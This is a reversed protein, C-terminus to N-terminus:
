KYGSPIVNSEVPSGPIGQVEISKDVWVLQVCLVMPEAQYASADTDMPRDQSTTNIKEVPTKRTVFSRPNNFFGHAFDLCFM